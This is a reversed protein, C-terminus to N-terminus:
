ISVFNTIKLEETVITLQLKMLYKAPWNDIETKNTHPNLNFGFGWHIHGWFIVNILFNLLLKFSFCHTKITLTFANFTNWFICILFLINNSTYSISTKTQCYKCLSFLIAKLFFITWEWKEGERGLRFPVLPIPVGEGM